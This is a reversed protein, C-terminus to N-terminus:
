DPEPPLFSADLGPDNFDLEDQADLEDNVFEVLCTRSHFHRDAAVTAEISIQGDGSMAINAEAVVFWDEEGNEQVHACHPGDCSISVNSAM